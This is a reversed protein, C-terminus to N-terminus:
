KSFHWKEIKGFFSSKKGAISFKPTEYPIKLKLNYKPQKRVEINQSIMYFNDITLVNEDGKTGVVHWKEIKPVEM